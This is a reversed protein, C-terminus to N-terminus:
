VRNKKCFELMRQFEPRDDTRASEGKEIFVHDIEWRQRGCYERLDRDQEELSYGKEAQKRTSVRIYLVATQVKGKQNMTGATQTRTEAAKRSREWDVSLM